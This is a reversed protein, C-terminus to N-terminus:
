SEAQWLYFTLYGRWPSAADCDTETLAWQALRKKIWLDQAPWADPESFGRLALYNATWPGIGKIATMARILSALDTYNQIQQDWAAALASLTQKRSNPLPLSSLDARALETASPPQYFYTDKWARRQGFERFLRDAMRTAATISVQQGLVARLATEWPDFSGPIRTGPQKDLLVAIAPLSRLSQEIVQPDADLDFQRRIRGIVATTHRLDSLNLTVDLSHSKASHAVRYHGTCDDIVFFRQYSQEDVQEISPLQRQRYFDLLTQWALPPRYSLSLTLSAEQAAKNKRFQSPTTAFVTKFAHNFQRSSGFGASLAIDTISLSSEKLLKRSFQLRQYDAYRSPSVGLHQQFLRRLHRDTLGLRACLADEGQQHFAGQDILRKARAVVAATGQWAASGPASEPRCRLCPRYGAQAAAAASPYFAVNEPKPLNAPCIPRCYIGTSSVAIFFRGDYRRDRALRAREFEATTTNDAIRM